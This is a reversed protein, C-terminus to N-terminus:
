KGGFWRTIDVFSETKEPLARKVEEMKGDVNFYPFYKKLDLSALYPQLAIAMITLFLIRKLM